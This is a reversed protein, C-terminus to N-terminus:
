MASACKNDCEHQSRTWWRPKVVDAWIVANSTICWITTAAMNNYHATTNLKHQTCTHAFSIGLQCWFIVRLRHCPHMSSWGVGQHPMPHQRIAQGPHSSTNEHVHITFFAGHMNHLKEVGSTCGFEHVNCCFWSAYAVSLSQYNLNYFGFQGIGRVFKHIYLLSNCLKQALHIHLLNTWVRSTIENSISRVYCLNSGLM